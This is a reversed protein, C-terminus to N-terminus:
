FIGVGFNDDPPPESSEVPKERKTTPRLSGLFLDESGGEIRGNPKTRPETDGNTETRGRGRRRRRSRRGRGGDDDSIETPREDAVPSESSRRSRRPRGTSRGQRASRGDPDEEEESGTALVAVPEPVAADDTLNEADYDFDDDYDRPEYGPQAAAECEALFGEIVRAQLADRCESNIPHAIDAHVKSRGDGGRGRPMAGGCEACYNGRIQNKTGCRSCRVTIKRSPMAVFLGKSGEIVKLDRVVFADDITISCFAKLKDHRAGDVLKVRVETIEM